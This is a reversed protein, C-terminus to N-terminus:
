EGEEKEPKPKGFGGLNFRFTSGGNGGMDLREVRERLDAPVAKKEKDTNYPGEFLVKGDLDRVVVTRKKGRTKMEVIGQEDRLTVSGFAQFGGDNEGDPIEFRLQPMQGLKLAGRKGGLAKELQELMEKEFGEAGLDQLDFKFQPNLLRNMEAAPDPVLAMPRVDRNLPANGLTVEQEIKKGRRVLKLGVVDGPKNAVIANRLSNQDTIVKNGVSLIIDNEKLGSLGAPSNPDVTTLLLGQELELHVKLAESIAEGGVGLYAVKKAAVEPATESKPSSGPKPDLIGGQPEPPVEQKEGGPREIAIMTMASGLIMSLTFKTTKM